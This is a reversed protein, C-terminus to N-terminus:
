RHGREIVGCQLGFGAGNRRISKFNAPGARSPTKRPRNEGGNKLLGSRPTLVIPRQRTAM